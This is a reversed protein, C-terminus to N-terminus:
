TTVSPRMGTAATKIANAAQSDDIGNTMMKMAAIALVWAHPPRPDPVRAAAIASAILM